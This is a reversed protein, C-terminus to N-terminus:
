GRSLDTDATLRLAFAAILKACNAVDDLQVIEVASHMYRLPLGVGGTVIGGRTLHIADADTGTRAASAMFTHPISEAEAAEVLLEYVRPHLITGREIVPGSGFTHTGLQKADVGPTDTEHTVDVM